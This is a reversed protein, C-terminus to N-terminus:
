TENRRGRGEYICTFSKLDNVVEGVSRDYRDSLTQIQHLKEIYEEAAGSDVIHHSFEQIAEIYRM